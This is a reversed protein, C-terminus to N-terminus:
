FDYSLEGEEYIENSIINMLVPKLNDQLLEIVQERDVGNSIDIRGSGAIEIVVRRIGGDIIDNREDKDKEAPPLIKAPSEENTGAIIRNEFESVTLDPSDIVIDPIVLKESEADYRESSSYYRETESLNSRSLNELMKAIIEWMPILVSIVGNEFTQSSNASNSYNYEFTKMSNGYDTVANIVNNSSDECYFSNANSRDATIYNGSDTFASNDATINYNYRSDSINTGNLHNRSIENTSKHEINDGFSASASDFVSNYTNIINDFINEASASYNTKYARGNVVEATDEDSNISNGYEAITAATNSTRNNFLNQSSDPNSYDAETQYVTTYNDKFSDGGYDVMKDSYNLIDGTRNNILSETNYTDASTRNDINNEVIDDYGNTDGICERANYSYVSEYNMSSDSSYSSDWTKSIDTRESIDSNKVADGYNLINSYNRIMDGYEIISDNVDHFINEESTSLRTKVNNDTKTIYDKDGYRLSNEFSHAVDGYNTIDTSTRSLNNDGYETSYSRSNDINQTDGYIVSDDYNSVDNGPHIKSMIKELKSIDVITVAEPIEVTSELAHDEKSGVEKEIASCISVFSDLYRIVTSDDYSSGNEVNSYNNFIQTSENQNYNEYASSYNNVSSNDTVANETMRYGTGDIANLASIIKNTESNPFVTSGSKGVILEPGEEGAVFVDEANTTGTAHGQIKVAGSVGDASYSLNANNFVSRVVDVVSQAASRANGIGSRIASAYSHMTNTAAANAETSLNLESVTTNMKNVINDMEESFHTSWDATLDAIEKQKTDVNSLTGALKTVAETDGQEISAAISAALGAAEESGSQAYAVLSEYNVRAEGTLGKGYEVLTELNTQYETWYALQSDLAAQANAVTSNLYEESATSAQDFLGFQGQMSELASQYAEDYAASLELIQDTYQEAATTAADIGEQEAQLAETEKETSSSLEGYSYSMDNLRSKFKEAFNGTDDIIMGYTEIEAEATEITKQYEEISATVSNIDAQIESTQRRKPLSEPEQGAVTVSTEPRWGNTNQDLEGNLANLEYYLERVNKAATLYSDQFEAGSLYEMATKYRESEAAKIVKDIITQPDFGTLEKTDYNVKIDCNFENNLYDAYNSMLDLDDNTLHSQESLSELMAVATLGSTESKDIEALAKKQASSIEDFSQVLKEAQEDYVAVKGGGKEFQANLNELNDALEQAASSNEGYLECAKDYAAETRSIENACEAMTGNYEAIQDESSSFTSTLAFIGGVLATAGLSIWGIPGLAAQISAGFATIAPIAVTVAFTVGAIAVAAVGLGAGIAIIAKTVAPHKNLFDGVGSMLNAFSSSFKDITPQLASTFAAKIKNNSKEWKEGLTEGAEATKRLTGDASELSANFSDVSVTGNRISLALQQGARTGFTEVALATAETSDEMGAIKAIVNQLEIEADKGDKAFNNVATRMATIATSSNIGALEFDALLQIASDLSLGVEQFSAAGTILTQSLSDVSAGSIQGAYALRDLVSEVNEMDVGWLNMVKTANQVSGVVDSGTIRSYDLFLGTVDTLEDGTLAMRTNIEGIAGATTSLDQHHGAYANMMSQELGNLAEGTAGTANVVIEQAESYANALEYAADAIEYVKEAIKAAIVTEAIATIADVGKTGSEEASQAANDAANSYEETAKSAKDQASALNEAATGARQAASELEGLDSTGSIIVADYNDMATQADAQAAELEQMAQAAAQGASELQEQSEASLKGSDALQSMAENTSEISNSFQEYSNVANEMESNLQSASQECLAFMEEQNGLADATKYGMEVLEETTYVMELAEKNYSGVASTWNDTESAANDISNGVGNMAESLNDANAGVSNATNNLNDLSKAAGDVTSVANSASSAVSDMASSASNGVQEWNDIVSQGKDAIDSLKDSMEDILSFRARLEAM